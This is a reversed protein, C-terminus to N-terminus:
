PRLTRKLGIRDTESVSYILQAENDKTFGKMENNEEWTSCNQAINFGCIVSGCYWLPKM